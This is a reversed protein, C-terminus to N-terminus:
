QIFRSISWQGICCFHFDFHDICSLYLVHSTNCVWDSKINQGNTELNQSAQINEVKQKSFYLDLIFNTNLNKLIRVFHIVLRFARFVTLGNVNPVAFDVTSLVIVV